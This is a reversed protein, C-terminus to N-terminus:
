PNFDDEGAETGNQCLACISSSDLIGTDQLAASSFVVAACDRGSLSLAPCTRKGAPMESQRPQAYRWRANLSSAPRSVFSGSKLLSLITTEAAPVLANANGHSTPEQMSTGPMALIKLFFRGSEKSGLACAMASALSKGMGSDSDSSISTCAEANFPWHAPAEAQAQDIELRARVVSSPM